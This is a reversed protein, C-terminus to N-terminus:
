VPEGNRGVRDFHAHQGKGEEHGEEAERSGAGSGLERARIDSAAGTNGATGRKAFTEASRRAAESTTIPSGVYEQSIIARCALM